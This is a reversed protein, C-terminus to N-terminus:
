PTFIPTTYKWVSDLPYLSSAHSSSITETIISICIIENKLGTTSNKMAACLFKDSARYEDVRCRNDTNYFYKGQLRQLFDRKM